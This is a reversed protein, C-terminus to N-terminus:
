SYVNSGGLSNEQTSYINVEKRKSAIGVAPVVDRSIFDSTVVGQYYNIVTSSGGGGGAGVLSPAYSSALNSAFSLKSLGNEVGQSFYNAFHEGQTMAMGDYKPTDFMGGLLAGFMPIFSSIISKFAAQIFYKTFDKAIGKFIEALSTKAGFMAETMSSALNSMASNITSVLEDNLKIESQYVAEMEAEQNASLARRAQFLQNDTLLTDENLQKRLEAYRREIREREQDYENLGLLNAEFRQDDIGKLTDVHIRYKDLM